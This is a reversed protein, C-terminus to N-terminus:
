SWNLIELKRQNLCEIMVGIGSGAPLRQQLAQYETLAQDVRKLKQQAIEGEDSAEWPHPQSTRTPDAMFGHAWDQTYACFPCVWGDVTAILTGRDGGEEGHNGDGSEACTFPHLQRAKGTDTQYENLTQVAEQSFPAHIKDLSM